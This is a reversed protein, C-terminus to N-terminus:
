DDGRVHDLHHDYRHQVNSRAHKTDHGNRELRAQEITEALALASAVVRDVPKTLDGLM